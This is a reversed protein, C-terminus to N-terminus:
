LNLQKSIELIRLIFETVEIQSKIIRKREARYIAAMRSRYSNSDLQTEEIVKEDDNLTFNASLLQM